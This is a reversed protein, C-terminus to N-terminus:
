NYYVEFGHAVWGRVADQTEEKNMVDNRLEIYDGNRIAYVGQPVYEKAVKLVKEAEAESMDYLTNNVLVQM